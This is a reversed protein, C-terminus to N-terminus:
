AEELLAILRENYFPINRKKRIDSKLLGLKTMEKLLNMATTHRSRLLKSAQTGTIVPFMFIKEVLRPAYISKKINNEVIDKDKKYLSYIRELINRSRLAQEKVGRLVFKFWLGWNEQTTIELLAKYYLDKERLLYGSLYLLPYELVREKILFLSILVRGLRGNGDAFPHIAEFEYHAIACRLITDIDSNKENLYKELNKMLGEVKDAPPPLFIISDIDNKRAVANSGERFEGPRRMEGRVAFMLKKHMEKIVRNVLPLGKKDLLYLGLKTSERHNIVELAEGRIKPPLKIGADHQVIDRATAETGEIRSSALAERLLMPGILLDPNPVIRAYSNLNGIARNAEGILSVLENSYLRSLTPPFINKYEPVIEKGRISKIQEETFM